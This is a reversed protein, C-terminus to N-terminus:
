GNRALQSVPWARYGKGNKVVVLKEMPRLTTPRSSRVPMIPGKGFEYGTYPNRGYDRQFGTDRSLVLGNPYSQQFQDFPIMQSPLIRLTGGTHHGVIAEGTIQQWLSDTQRDYMVMDSNRLMGSVGFELTAGSVRRDFVLASNCLPCYSVLIPQEGATDNVLEHWMLIQLPYARPPGASNFAIVLEKPALWDVTVAPVFRPKDISPIGDKPPGGRLLESLQISRKSTDTKWDGQAFQARIPFSLFLFLLVPLCKMSTCSNASRPPVTVTSMDDQPSSFFPQQSQSCSGSSSLPYAASRAPSSASATLWPPWSPSPFPWKGSTPAPEADPM